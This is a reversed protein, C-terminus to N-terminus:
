FNFVPSRCEHGGGPLTFLFMGRLRDIFAHTGRGAVPMGWFDRLDGDLKSARRSTQLLKLFRLVL